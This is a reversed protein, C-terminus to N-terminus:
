DVIEVEGKHANVNIKMGTRLLETANKTGVIAPIKLERCIIAAHCTVGGLDTVVAAAKGLLTTMDPTTTDSILIDGTKINWDLDTQEHHVVVCRGSVQGPSAPLGYIKKVTSKRNKTFYAMLDEWIHDIEVYAAEDNYDFFTLSKKNGLTGYQFELHGYIGRLLNYLHQQRKKPITKSYHLIGTQDFLMPDTLSFGRTMIYHRDGTIFEAIGRGKPSVLATGKFEPNDAYEAIFIKYHLKDPLNNIFKWAEAVEYMHLKTQRNLNAMAPDPIASIWFPTGLRGVAIELDAKTPFEGLSFAFSREHPLGLSHMKAYIAVRDKSVEVKIKKHFKTEIVKGWKQISTFKEMNIQNTNATDTSINWSRGVRDAALKGARILRIVQMRSIKHKTAYEQVSMYTEAM